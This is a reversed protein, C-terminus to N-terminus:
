LTKRVNRRSCSLSSQSAKSTGNDTCIEMEQRRSQLGQQLDVKYPTSKSHRSKTKHVGVKTNSSDDRLKPSISLGQLKSSISLSNQFSSSTSLGLSFENRTPLLLSPSASSLKMM